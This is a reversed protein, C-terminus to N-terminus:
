RGSPTIMGRLRCNVSDLHLDFRAFATGVETNRAIVQLNDGHPAMPDSIGFENTATEHVAVAEQSSDVSKTGYADLTGFNNEAALGLEAIGSLSCSAKVLVGNLSEITTRGVGQPVAVDISTAGPGAAGEAGRAGEPGRLGDKGDRGAAGTAGILTQKAAVSLKAPTVAGKRLQKAGVSNKALQNAALASAGGLVLFLCLTSIVNAYSLKGRLTKL